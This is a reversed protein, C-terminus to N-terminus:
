DKILVGMVPVGDDVPSGPAGYATYEMGCVTLLSLEPITWWCSFLLSFGTYSKHISELAPPLPLVAERGSLSTLCTGAWSTSRHTVVNSGQTSFMKAMHDRVSETTPAVGVICVSVSLVECQIHEGDRYLLRDSGM